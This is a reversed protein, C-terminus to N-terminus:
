RPAARRGEEQPGAEGRWPHLPPTLGLADYPSDANTEAIMERLPGPDAAGRWLIEQLRWLLAEEEPGVHGDARAIMFLDVVIGAVTEGGVADAHDRLVELDAGVGDAGAGKGRGFEAAFAERGGAPLDLRGVLEEAAAIESPTVRGDAKALRGAVRALAALHPPLDPAAPAPEARADDEAGGANGASLLGDARRIVERLIERRRAHMDLELAARYVGAILGAVAAFVTVVRGPIGLLWMMLSGALLALTAVAVTTEAFAEGASEEEREFSGRGAFFPRVARVASGAAARLLLRALKAGCFVGLTGFLLCLGAETRGSTEGSPADAAIRLVTVALLALFGGCILAVSVVFLKRGAVILAPFPERDAWVLPNLVDAWNAAWKDRNLRWPADDPLREKRVWERSHSWFSRSDGASARSVDQELKALVEPVRGSERLRGLRDHAEITLETASVPM